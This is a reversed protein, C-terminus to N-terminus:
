IWVTPSDIPERHIQRVLIGQQNAIAEEALVDCRENFRNGNHGRVWRYQIPIGDTLAWIEELLDLNKKPAWAKSLCNVAWQSDSYVTIEIDKTDVVIELAKMIATLEMRNNTSWEVFGSIERWILHLQEGIMKEIIILSGYGGPGPNSPAAAGDAFIVIKDM